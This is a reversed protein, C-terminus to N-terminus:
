LLEEIMLILLAKRRRAAQDAAEAAARAERRSGGRPRSLAAEYRRVLDSCEERIRRSEAILDPKVRGRGPSETSANRPRDNATITRLLDDHRFDDDQPGVDRLNKATANM